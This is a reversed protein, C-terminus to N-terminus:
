TKRFRKILHVALVIGFALGVAEGLDILSELKVLDSWNFPPMKDPEPAPRQSMAIIFDGAFGAGVSFEIGGLELVSYAFAGGIIAFEVFLLPNLGLVVPLGNLLGCVVCLGVRTRVFAGAVQLFVGRFLVERAAMAMLLLPPLALAYVIRDAVPQSTDLLPPAFKGGLAVDIGVVAATLLGYVLMGALLLQALFPRAPSVFTWAPRQFALRAAGLFPLALALFIFSNRCIVRCDGLLRHPGAGATFGPALIPDLARVFSVAVVVGMIALPVALTLWLGLRLANRDQPGVFALFPSIPESGSPAATM